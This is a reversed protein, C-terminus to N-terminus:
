INKSYAVPKQAFRAGMEFARKCDEPFVERHTKAKAESDFRDSVVKSYDLFQYTDYSFLSESNGFLFKLYHENTDFHLQYGIQKIQEQKVNMTYIFGSNIKNPFLSKPPETYTFYPFILREMFSKMEGTVTGFYIPSGLIVADSKEIDEFIPTLDDNVACRGYSRGGKIKCAFCSKCGKYNLDYLNFLETEAGESVAGELANELLKATNFKKRPSGNVAIVKMNESGVL